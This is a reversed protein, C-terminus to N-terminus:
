EIRKAHQDMGAQHLILERARGNGDTVFTIQADVVKLFYDRDSEPFIQFKPQGTAQAFLHDDERTITLIFNPALQYSGIYGVFVKPDVATEKHEKPPPPEGELRKAHQDGGGQHLILESAKDNGSTVFTIQADVVKLFYDRDSEPFIQFKPQGTAQAFLHDDERTITLVFDPALQYRGIYGNFLKPNVTVEKHESPMVVKEGHVVAALKSAIEQPALGNLNGLVIVVLKEEPYYALM